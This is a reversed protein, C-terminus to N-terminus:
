PTVIHNMHQSLTTWLNYCIQTWKSRAMDTVNAMGPMEIIDAKDALDANGAKGAMDAMYAMDAM